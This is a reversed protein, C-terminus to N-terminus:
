SGEGLISHVATACASCVSPLAADSGVDFTFKWCRECKVGGAREITAALGEADRRRVEVQSTIFLAPLDAAYRDLLESYDPGAELLVKAELPAGILKANRAEELEKLVAARVQLLRDWAATLGDDSLGGNLEEPKPLLALHVSTPEGQAKRMHGWVEDTTFALIPAALRTLAHNVLYLATQASRRARSNTASTYLRDKLVDFYVSSLDVTAFNYIAQYVRHYAFSDYWARCREVLAAARHLIWQDIELLGAPSVRGAVPDFDHLNGLAYRFTNRLKRYAETLRTLVLESVRVDETFEVSSVWLRLVDAGHKKIIEEPSIVNGLSKSMARGDGDLTWGNTACERYPATGRLGVAVLL